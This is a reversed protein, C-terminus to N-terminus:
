PKITAGTSGKGNQSRKYKELKAAILKQFEAPLNAMSVAPGGKPLQDDNLCQRILFQPTFRFTFRYVTRRGIRVQDFSPILESDEDAPEEKFIKLKAMLDADLVGFSGVGEGEKLVPTALPQVMPVVEMFGSETIGNPLLETPESRYDSGNAAANMRSSILNEFLGTGQETPMSGESEILPMSGYVLQRLLSRQHDTLARFSLRFGTSSGSKLQPPLSDYFRLMEWSWPTLLRLTTLEPVVHSMYITSIGGGGLRWPARLSFAALDALGPAGREEASRMLAALAVRDVRRNRAKAPKSPRIMLWGGEVKSRLEGKGRLEQEFAEVTSIKRSYLACDDSLSAVMPLGRKKALSLLGDSTFLSLPDVKDPHYILQRLEASLRVDRRGAAIRRLHESLERTTLSLEIPIQPGSPAPAELEVSNESTFGNLGSEHSYAVRGSADYLRLEVLVPYEGVGNPMKSAVVIAKSVDGIPRKSEAIRERYTSPEEIEDEDDELFAPGSAIDANHKQVIRDVLSSIDGIFPRQTRTPRTSFVVRENDGLSALAAPDLHGLVLAQPDVGGAKSKMRDAIEQKFALTTEELEAKAERQRAADNPVLKLNAGEWKWSGATVTAIRGLLDGVSSEKVSIVLVENAMSPSVSLKLKAANALAAIVHDATAARSTFTVTQAVNQAVALSALGFAATLALRRM